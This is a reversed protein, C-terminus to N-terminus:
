TEKETEKNLVDKIAVIIGDKSLLMQNLIYERNAFVKYWGNDRVLGLRKVEKHIDNDSLLELIFSGIGGPLVNEELTLISDCISIDGCLRAKDVDLSFLDIHIAEDTLIDNELIEKVVKSLYGCTIIGLKKKQITSGSVYYGKIIDIENKSYIEGRLAKDFRIFRPRNLGLTEDALKEAIIVDTPNYLSINPLTRVIAMDEIPMHTYGSEASCLGANLSCVTVPLNMEAMLCRMQDLARTVPFPNLGYAIVRKGAMAMGCSMSILNQEAIGVSIYNKPYKERLEDFCPAGLDSTVVYIEEGRKIWECIRNLFADKVSTM